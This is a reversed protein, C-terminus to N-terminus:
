SHKNKFDNETLQYKAKSIQDDLLMAFEVSNPWALLSLINGLESDQAQHIPM